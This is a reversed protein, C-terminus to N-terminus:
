FCSKALTQTMIHLAKKVQAWLLLPLDEPTDIRLKQAHDMIIEKIARDNQVGVLLEKRWIGIVM